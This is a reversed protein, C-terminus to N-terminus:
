ENTNETNQEIDSENANLDSEDQNKIDLENFENQKDYEKNLADVKEQAETESMGEIEIFYDKKTKLGMNMLMAFDSIQQQKDTGINEKISVSINQLTDRYNLTLDMLCISKAILKKLDTQRLNIKLQITENKSANQSSIETATQIAESESDKGIGTIKEAFEIMNNINNWYGELNPNGAQVEIWSNLQTQNIGNAQGPVLIIGANFFTAKLDPDAKKLTKLDNASLKVYVRTKNAQLEYYLLEAQENMITQLNAFANWDPDFDSFSQGWLTAVPYNKFLVAPTFDINPFVKEYEKINYKKEIEKIKSAKLDLFTGTATTQLTQKIKGPSYTLKVFNPTKGSSLPFVMNISTLDQYFRTYNSNFPIASTWFAITQDGDKGLTIAVPSAGFQSLKKELGYMFSRIDNHELLIDILGQIHKNESKVSFGKGVIKKAMEKAIYENINLLKFAKPFTNTGMNFDQARQYPANKTTPTSNLSKYQGTKYDNLMANTDAIDQNTQKNKRYAM